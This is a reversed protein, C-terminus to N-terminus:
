QGGPRNAPIPLAHCRGPESVPQNEKEHYSRWLLFHIPETSRQCNGMMALMGAPISSYPTKYVGAVPVARLRLCNLIAGPAVMGSKYIETGDPLVISIVFYCENESPNELAVHQTLAGAQFTLKDYGPIAISGVGGVAYEMGASHAESAEQPVGGPRPNIRTGLFMGGLLLFVSLAGAGLM